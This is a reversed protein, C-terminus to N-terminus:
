DGPQEWVEAEEWSRRAEILATQRCRRWIKSFCLAAAVHLALSLSATSTLSM